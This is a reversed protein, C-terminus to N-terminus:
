PVVQSVKISPTQLDGLGDFYLSTKAEFNGDMDFTIFNQKDFTGILEKRGNYFTVVAFTRYKGIAERTAKVDFSKVPKLDPGFKVLSHGDQIILDNTSTVTKYQIIPIEAIFASLTKWVSAFCFCCHKLKGTMGIPEEFRYQLFKEFNGDHRYIAVCAMGKCGIFFYENSAACGM